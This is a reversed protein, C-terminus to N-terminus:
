QLLNILSIMRGAQTTSVSGREVRTYLHLTAYKRTLSMLFSCACTKSYYMYRLHVKLGRGYRRAKSGEGAKNANEIAQKYNKEREM